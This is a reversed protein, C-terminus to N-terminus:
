KPSPPAVRSRFRRLEDLLHAYESGLDAVPRDVHAIDGARGRRELDKALEFARKAGWHDASGKLTHATRTFLSADGQTLASSLEELWRPAEELLMGALERALDEDGGAREIAAALDITQNREKTREAPPPDSVSVRMGLLREMEAFLEPLRVPKTVYGDFGASICQERDGKMAHATVAIVPLRPRAEQKEVGRLARITELGDMIPMQIDMLVLDLQRELM